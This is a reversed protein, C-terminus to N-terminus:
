IGAEKKDSWRCSWRCQSGLVFTAKVSGGSVLCALLWALLYGLWCALLCAFLCIGEGLRGRVLCDIGVSDDGLWKM